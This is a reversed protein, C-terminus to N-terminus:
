KLTRIMNFVAEPKLAYVYNLELATICWCGKCDPRELNKIIYNMNPNDVFGSEKNEMRNCAYVNGNAAIRIHALGAFCRIKPPNPWKTLYNLSSYSNQIYPNKRKERILTLMCNIFDKKPPYISKLDRTCFLINSVPQFTTPVKWEKIQKTIFSIKNVNYKTITTNFTVKLNHKRAIELARVVDEYSGKSRQLDNVEKPGDFSLQLVDLDKLENIKNGVLSGNSNIKTYINKEKCYGLIKGIDERLLPEGGTFSIIKTGMDALQDIMQIVKSTSLENSKSSYIDCYVCRYNCRDTLSWSVAIPIRKHFLRTQLFPKILQITSKM